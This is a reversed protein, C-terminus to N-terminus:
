RVLHYLFDHLPSNWPLLNIGAASKALYYLGVVFAAVAATAGIAVLLFRVFNVVASGTMAQVLDLPTEFTTLSTSNPTM